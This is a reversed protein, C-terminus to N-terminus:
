YVGIMQRRHMGAGVTDMHMVGPAGVVTKTVPDEPNVYSLERYMQALSCAPCCFSIACAECRNESRNYSKNLTARLNCGVLASFANFVPINGFLGVFSYCCCSICQECNTHQSGKSGFEFENPTLRGTIESYVCCPCALATCGLLCGDGKRMCSTVPAGRNLCLDFLGSKYHSGDSEDDGMREPDEVKM